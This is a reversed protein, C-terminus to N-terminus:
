KGDKQISQRIQEAAHQELARRAGSLVSKREQEINSMELDFQKRAESMDQQATSNIQKLRHQDTISM